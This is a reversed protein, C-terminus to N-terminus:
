FSKTQKIMMSKISVYVIIPCLVNNVYVYLLVNKLNGDNFIYPDSDINKLKNM